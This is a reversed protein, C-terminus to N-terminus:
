LHAEGINTIVGIHPRILNSLKRIEGARSMTVEFIGFEDSYSLNSLSVPIYIITLINLLVILREMLVKLLENLMNKLSTKGASGTIAIIKAM